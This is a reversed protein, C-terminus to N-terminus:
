ILEKSQYYLYAYDKLETSIGRPKLSMESSVKIGSIASRGIAGLIISTISSNITRGAIAGLTTGFGSFDFEVKVTGLFRNIKSEHMVKNLETIKNKLKEVAIDKSLDKDLSDMISIYMQDM